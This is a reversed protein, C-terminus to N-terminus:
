SDKKINTNIADMLLEAANIDAGKYIEQIGTPSTINIETLTDGIVDIGAFIVGMAQLDKAITTAIESDRATLPRIEATAGAALNGRNDKESPVRAMCYEVPKGDVILIRKDGDKISAQYDQVMIYKAEHETLVELIVNKNKDGDQIRFISSGGMGDLPKVIIDKHEDYFKNIEAYSRTILTKPTFNPYNAIAVKENYDRLAQPNNVVCVGAKQAIDLMYTVYIYEMNFPPDKRMLIADLDNLSVKEEKEITYWSSDNANNLKLKKANGFPVGDLISLDNMYFTYIDWGKANAANLMMYTSDKGINFTELEDIIFGIKM